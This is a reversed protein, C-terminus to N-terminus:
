NGHKTRALNKRAKDLLSSREVWTDTDEAFLGEEGSYRARSDEDGARFIVNPEM